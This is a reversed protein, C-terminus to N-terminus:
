YTPKFPFGPHWSFQESQVPEDSGELESAWLRENKSYFQMAQQHHPFFSPGVAHKKGGRWHWWSIGMYM